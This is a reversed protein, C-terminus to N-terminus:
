EGNMKRGVSQRSFHSSFIIQIIGYQYYWDLLYNKSAAIPSTICRKRNTERSNYFRLCIRISINILNLIDMFAFENLDRSV